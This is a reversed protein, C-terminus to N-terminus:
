QSGAGGPRRHWNDNSQKPAREPTSQSQRDQSWPRRPPPRRPPPNRPETIIVTNYPYYWGYYLGLSLPPWFPDYYPAYASRYEPLCEYETTMPAVPGTGGKTGKGGQPEAPTEDDAPETELPYCALRNGYRDVSYHHPPEERYPHSHCAAVGLAAAFPLLIAISRNM